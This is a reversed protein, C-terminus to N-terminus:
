SKTRTGAQGKKGQWSTADMDLDYKDEMEFDDDKADAPNFTAGFDIDATEEEDNNQQTKKKLSPM